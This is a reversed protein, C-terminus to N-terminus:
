IHILSLILDTLLIKDGKKVLICIGQKTHTVVPICDACHTFPRYLCDKIKQCEKCDPKAKLPEQKCNDCLDRVKLCSSCPFFDKNQIGVETNKSLRGNKDLYELAKATERLILEFFLSYKLYGQEDYLDEKLNAKEALQGLLHLILSM